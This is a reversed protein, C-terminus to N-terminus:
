DQFRFPRKRFNGAQEICWPDRHTSCLTRAQAYEALAAPRQGRVDAVKGLELHIRGRVWGAPNQSLALRLDTV